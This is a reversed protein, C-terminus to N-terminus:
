MRGLSRKWADAVKQVEANDYSICMWNQIDLLSNLQYTKQLKLKYKQLHSGLMSATMNYKRPFVEEIQKPKVTKIGLETVIQAFIGSLKNDWKFRQKAEEKIQPAQNLRALEQCRTKIDAKNQMVFSMPVFIQGNYIHYPTELTKVHSDASASFDQHMQVSCINNSAATEGSYDESMESLHLPAMDSYEFYANQWM